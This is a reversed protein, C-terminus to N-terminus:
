KYQTLTKSFEIARNAIEILITLKAVTLKDEYEKQKKEDDPFLTYSDKVEMTVDVMKLLEQITYEKM